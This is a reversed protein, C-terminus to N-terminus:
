TLGFTTGRGAMDLLVSVRSRDLHAVCHLFPLALVHPLEKGFPGGAAVGSGIVARAGGDCNVRLRTCDGLFGSPPPPLDSSWDPPLLDAIERVGHLQSPGARNPYPARSLSSMWGIDLTQFDGHVDPM